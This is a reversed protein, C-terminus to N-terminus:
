SLTKIEAKPFVMRFDTIKFAGLVRGRALDPFYQPDFSWNLVSAWKFHGNAEPAFTFQRGEWHQSLTRLREPVWQAPMPLKLYKHELQIDAFVTGDDARLRIHDVRDAGYSVVFDCREKPIGWNERGNVVSEQSSVYIRTISPRRGDGFDFSGPIFLLEHYPGVDSEAYDVFMAYAVRGRRSAAISAPMASQERVVEDPLLVAFIYGQGRLQWPAPARIAEPEHVMTM